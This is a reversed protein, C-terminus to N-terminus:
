GLELLLKFFKCYSSLFVPFSDSIFRRSLSTMSAYFASRCGFQVLVCNATTYYFLVVTSPFLFPRATSEVPFPSHLSAESNRVPVPRAPYSVNGWLLSPFSIGLLSFYWTHLCLLFFETHKLCGMEMWRVVKVIVWKWGEPLQKPDLEDDNPAEDGAVKRDCGRSLATSCQLSKILM